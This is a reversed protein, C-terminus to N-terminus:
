REAASQEHRQALQRDTPKSPNRRLAVRQEPVLKQLGTAVILEGDQLGGRVFARGSEQHLVEIQRTRIVYERNQGADLPVAPVMVYCGWLGRYSENLATMPLWFGPEDVHHRFRVIALDGVIVRQIGVLPQHNAQGEPRDSSLELLVSVTRTAQNRDPRISRVRSSYEVGNIEVPQITSIALSELVDESVGLRVELHDTELVHAVPQGMEVVTGEDLFREAIVGSFPAVLNSKQLRIQIAKREAHLRDVLARQSELQEQRTGNELELLRAEAANLRAHTSQEGFTADDLAQKSVARDGVLQAHRDQTAEALRSQARWHEVEAHAAEILEQRPGAVMEALRSSAARIEAETSELQANLLQVDLSAIVDGRKVSEGEDVHVHAVLGGLEFSLRSARRSEVRGVFERTVDYGSEQGAVLPSVMALKAPTQQEVDPPYRLAGGAIGIILVLSGSVGVATTRPSIWRGIRILGNSVLDRSNSRNPVSLRDSGAEVEERHTSSERM